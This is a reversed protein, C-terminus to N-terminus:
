GEIGLVPNMFSTTDLYFAGVGPYQISSADLRHLVM